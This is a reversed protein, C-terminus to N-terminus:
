VSVSLWTYTPITNYVLQNRQGYMREQKQLNLKASMTHVDTPKYSM